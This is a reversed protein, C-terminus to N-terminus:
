RFDKDILTTRKEAMASIQANSLIQIVLGASDDVYSDQRSPTTRSRVKVFSTRLTDMADAAIELGAQEAMRNALLMMEDISLQELTFLMVDCKHMWSCAKIKMVLQPTGILVLMVSTRVVSNAHLFHKGLRPLWAEDTLYEECDDVIWTGQPTLSGDRFSRIESVAMSGVLGAGFLLHPLVKALESKGTGAEGTVIIVRGLAVTTSASNRYLSLNAEVKRMGEGLLTSLRTQGANWAKDRDTSVASSEGSRASQKEAYTAVQGADLPSRQDQGHIKMRAKAGVATNAPISAIDIQHTAPPLSRTTLSTVGGQAGNQPLPSVSWLRLLYLEPFLRHLLSSM